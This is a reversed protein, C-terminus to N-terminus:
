KSLSEKQSGSMEAMLKKEVVLVPLWPQLVNKCEAHMHLESLGTM